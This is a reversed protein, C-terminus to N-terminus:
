LLMGIANTRRADGAIANVAQVEDFWRAFRKARVSVLRRIDIAMAMARANAANTSGATEGGVCTLACALWIRVEGGGSLSSSVDGSRITTQNLSGISGRRLLILTRSWSPRCTSLRSLWSEGVSGVATTTM